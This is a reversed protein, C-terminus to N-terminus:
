VSLTWRELSLLQMAGWISFVRGRGEAGIEDMQYNRLTPPYKKPPGKMLIVINQPRYQTGWNQFVVREQLSLKVKRVPSGLISSPERFRPGKM